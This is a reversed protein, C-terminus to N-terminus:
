DSFVEGEEQEGRSCFAIALPPVVCHRLVAYRGSTKWKQLSGKEFGKRSLNWEYANPLFPLPVQTMISDQSGTSDTSQLQKSAFHQPFANLAFGRATPASGDRCEWQV